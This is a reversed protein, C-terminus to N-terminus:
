MLNKYKTIVRKTIERNLHNVLPSNESEVTSVMMKELEESPIFKYEIGGDVLMISLTGIGVDVVSVDEGEDICNLFEDCIIEDTLTFIDSMADKPITTLKSISEELKNM